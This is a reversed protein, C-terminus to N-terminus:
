RASAAWTLLNNMFDLCFDPDYGCIGWTGTGLLGTTIDLPTFLVQGQGHRLRYLATAAPAVKGAAYPRFTPLAGKLLIHDAPVPELAAGPFARQLLDAASAAFGNGNAAGNGGGCVDILVTGGAEVYARLAECQSDMFRLKTNGTVHSLRAPEAALDKLEVARVDLAEGCQAQRWRSLREFAFPEPDWNGHHKVRAVPLRRAPPNAPAPIFPGDLRNALPGKGTAYLYLNLGLRFANPRQADARTQWYVAIDTPSHVLLIRSGNSVHKLGIPPQVPGNLAFLEHDAPVDKLEYRPFLKRALEVVSKTFEVSDADAHTFLTGGAEVYQRLKAIEEDGFRLPEHSAISLIPADLWQGVDSHIAVLQWNVPRGIQRWAYRSLNAADRARNCWYGDFRLKAMMVPHRGRSLSLVFYSTEILADASAADRGWAGTPGQLPLARVALDRYWDVPGIHKFGSDLGVRQVGFLDYGLRRQRGAQGDLARVGGKLWNLGRAMAESYPDRGVQGGHVIADTFDHAALLSAVGGTTMALSGSTDGARYGWEGSRLQCGTWHKEVDRWYQEPVDIGANAGAAVGLVGYQSNANDWGWGGNAPGAAMASVDLPARVAAGAPAPVGAPAPETTADGAPPSGQSYAGNRAAQVLWQVDAALTDRDEPRNLVALAAARMARGYTAPATADAAMAHQKMKELLVVTFAADPAVRVDGTAAAGELLAYAVLANLAQRYTPHAEGELVVEADRMQGLLFDMGRTIALGIQQDLEADAHMPRVPPRAAPREVRRPDVSAAPAPRTAASARATNNAPKTPPPPRQATQQGNAPQNVRPVYGREVAGLLIAYIRDQDQRARELTARLAPDSIKQTALRRELQRYKEHAEHLRGAIALDEAQAKLALLEAELDEAPRTAPPPNAPPRRAAESGPRLKYVSFTVGGALVVLCLVLAGVLARHGHRYQATVRVPTQPEYSTADVIGSGPRQAAMRLEALTPCQMSDGCAVCLVTYGLDAPQLPQIKGCSPCRITLSM